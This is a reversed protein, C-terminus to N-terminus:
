STERMDGAPRLKGASGISLVHIHLEALTEWADGQFILADIHVSMLVEVGIELLEIQSIQLIVEGIPV